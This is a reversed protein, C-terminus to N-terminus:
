DPKREVLKKIQKFDDIGEIQSITEKGSILRGFITHPSNNLAPQQDLTIIFQSGIRGNANAAAALLYPEKFKLSNTESEITASDYVTASGTGDGSMFDGGRIYRGPLV